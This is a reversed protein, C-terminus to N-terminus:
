SCLYEVTFFLSRVVGSGIQEILNSVTSVITTQSKSFTCIVVDTILASEVKRHQRILKVYLINGGPCLLKKIRSIIVHGSFADSGVELYGDTPITPCSVILGASHSPRAVLKFESKNLNVYAGYAYIVLTLRSGYSVFKDIPFGWVVRDGVALPVDYCTTIEPLVSDVALDRPIDGLDRFYFDDDSILNARYGDAITVGALLCNYPESFGGFYDPGHFKM